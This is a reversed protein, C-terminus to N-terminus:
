DWRHRRRGLARMCEPKGVFIVHANRIEEMSTVHGALGM